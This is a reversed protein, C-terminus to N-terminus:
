RVHAPWGDLSPLSHDPPFNGAIEGYSGPQLTPKLAVVLGARTVAYILSAKPQSAAFILNRRHTRFAIHGTQKDVAALGRMEDPTGLVVYVYRDDEALIRSANPLKWRPSHFPSEETVEQNGLTMKTTKDIATLGVNPVYQYVTTDTLQPGTTLPEGAFYQWKLKGSNKDLCYLQGATTACYCGSNNVAVASIIKSQTDFADNTLLPWFPSRDESCACRLRGRKRLLHHQAFPRRSCGVVTRGAGDVASALVAANASAGLVSAGKPRQQGIVGKVGLAFDDGGDGNVVGTTM